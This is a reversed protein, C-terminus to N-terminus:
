IFLIGSTSAFHMNNNDKTLQSRNLINEMNTIKFPSSSTQYVEFNTEIILCIEFPM